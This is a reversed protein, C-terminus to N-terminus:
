ETNGRAEFQVSKQLLVLDLLVGKSSKSCSRAVIASVSLPGFASRRAHDDDGIGARNVIEDEYFGYVYEM